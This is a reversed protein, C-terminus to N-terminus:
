GEGWDERRIQAVLDELIDRPYEPFRMLVATLIEAWSLEDHITEIYAAIEGEEAPSLKKKSM